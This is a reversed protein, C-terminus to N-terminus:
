PAADLRKKALAIVAQFDKLSMENKHGLPSDALESHDHGYPVNEKRLDAPTLYITKSGRTVALYDSDNTKKSHSANNESEVHGECHCIMTMDEVMGTYFSTGRVGATVTPTHLSVGEGKLLKKTTLWTSGKEQIFLKENEKETFRFKSNSQVEVLTSNEGFTIVATSRDETEVVDGNQLEQLPAVKIKQDGREITVNGSVFTIIGKKRDSKGKDCGMSIFLAFNLVLLCQLIKKM